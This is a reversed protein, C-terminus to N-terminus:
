EAPSGNISTLLILLISNTPFKILTRSVQPNPDNPAITTTLTAEMMPDLGTNMNPFQSYLTADKEPFIKYIAM